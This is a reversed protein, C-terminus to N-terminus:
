HATLNSRVQGPTQGTARRFAASFHSHSSFGLDAALTNLDAEGSALRVLALALRLQTRQQHLTRGTHRRFLRMLHFPSCHAARAIDSLSDDRTPDSALWARAREVAPHARGSTIHPVIQLCGHLLAVLTEEVALADIAGRAVAAAASHLQLRDAMSIAFRRPASTEAADVALVMIRQHAIPQRMRYGEEPTLWLGQTADCVGGLGGMLGDLQCEFSASLPLLLRPGAVHYEESWTPAAHLLTLEQWHLLPTQFVLRRQYPM